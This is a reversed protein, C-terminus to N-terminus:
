RCRLRGEEDAQVHVVVGDGDGDRGGAAGFHAAVSDDAAAMIVHELEGFFELGSM